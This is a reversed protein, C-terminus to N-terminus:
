VKFTIASLDNAIIVKALENISFVPQEVSFVTIDQSEPNIGILKTGTCIRLTAAIVAPDAQNIEFLVAHPSLMKLERAAEALSYGLWRVRLQRHVQLSEEIRSWIPSTGCLGVELVTKVINVLRQLHKKRVQCEM